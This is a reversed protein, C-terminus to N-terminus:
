EFNKGHQTAINSIYEKDKASEQLIFELLTTYKNKQLLAGIKSGSVVGERLKFWEESRQKINKSDLIRQNNQQQSNEIEM